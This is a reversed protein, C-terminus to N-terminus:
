AQGEDDIAAPLPCWHTIRYIDDWDNAEYWQGDELFAATYM